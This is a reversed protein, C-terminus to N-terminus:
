DTIEDALQSFLDTSLTPMTKKAKVKEKAIPPKIEKQAKEKAKMEELEKKLAAYKNMEAQLSANKMKLDVIEDKLKDVVTKDQSLSEVMSRKQNIEILKDQLRNTEELLKDFEEERVAIKRYLKSLDKQLSNLFKEVESPNIGSPVSLSFEVNEITDPTALGSVDIRRPINLFQLVPYKNDSSKNIIPNNVSEIDILTSELNEVSRMPKVKNEANSKEKKKTFLNNRSEKGVPPEKSIKKNLDGQSEKKIIEEMKSKDHTKNRFIDGEDLGIVENGISEELGTRIRKMISM